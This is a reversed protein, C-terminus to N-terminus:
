LTIHHLTLPPPRATLDLTAQGYFQNTACDTTSHLIINAASSIHLLGGLAPCSLAATTHGM